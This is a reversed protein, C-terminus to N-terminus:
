MSSVNKKWTTYTNCAASTRGHQTHIVHRQREEEVNHIYQMDSVNKKWTTYTNSAASTRRQMISCYWRCTICTCRPLVDAAHLVYVVHFFFTLPWYYMCLTSSSRWRGTICVCCPLLIDAVHLVYVIYFFFTLPMYYMCLMTYTNCAASTRGRQVHIVHRQYQLM